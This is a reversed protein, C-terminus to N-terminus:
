KQMVEEPYKERLRKAVQKRDIAEFFRIMGTMGKIVCAEQGLKRLKRIQIDQQASIVGRDSKLEVFYIEGFPFVAIRDPVGVNGPSIWKYAAGGEKRVESVFIRELESEKM